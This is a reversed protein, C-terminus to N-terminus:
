HALTGLAQASPYTISPAGRGASSLGPIFCIPEMKTIPTLLILRAALNLERMHLHDVLLAM